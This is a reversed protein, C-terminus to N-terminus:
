CRSRSLMTQNFHFQLPDSSSRLSVITNAELHPTFSDGLLEIQFQENFDVGSMSSCLSWLDDSLERSDPIPQYYHVPTIHWGPQEYLSFLAPDTFLRAPLHSALWDLLRKGIWRM